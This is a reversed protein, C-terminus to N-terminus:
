FKETLFSSGIFNSHNISDAAPYLPRIKDDVIWEEWRNVKTVYVKRTKITLHLTDLINICVIVITLLYLRRVRSHEIM